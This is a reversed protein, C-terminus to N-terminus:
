ATAREERNQLTRAILSELILALAVAMILWKWVQQRNELEVANQSRRESEQDSEKQASTAAVELPAGLREWDEYPLTDWQSEEPPAQVAIWRETFGEKLQYLGPQNPTDTSYATEGIAKWQSSTGDFASAISDSSLISTRNSGGAAREFLRQLWPVFKTSLPWQSKQPAWDAVWITLLGIGLAKEVIAPGSDDYEALISLGSRDPIELKHTNWFRIRSFDSFRPDSFIAFAHSQFDISGLRSDEQSAEALSWDLENALATATDLMDRSSLLLLAHSGSEIQERISSVENQTLASDLFLFPPLDTESGSDSNSDVFQVAPDVWGASARKVYFASQNPDDSYAPNGYYRLQMPRPQNEAIHLVNDFTDPDGALEVRYPGPAHEPVEMLVMHNDGTNSYLKLPQGLLTDSKADFLTLSLNSTLSQGSSQIGIRMSRNAEDGTWGLWRIGTNGPHTGQVTELKLLCDDPWERGAVGAIRATSQMDSILVVTKDTQTEAGDDIQELESLALEIADDLRTTGWNPSTEALLAQALTSREAIPWKDWQEFSLLMRANTSAAIISLKDAADVTDLYSQARQIANEWAGERQMSASADIALVIAKPPNSALDIPTNAVFFPRAFAFALLVIILCRLALLWPNQIHSRKQLKPPSERLFRMASFRIRDKTARRILHFIIPGAILLAGALFWPSLLSM